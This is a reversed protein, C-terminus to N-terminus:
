LSRGSPGKAPGELYVQEISNPPYPSTFIETASQASARASYAQHRYALVGGAVGLVWVAAVGALIPRWSPLPLWDWLGPKEEERRVKEWFRAKFEASPRVVPLADLLDWVKDIRGLEQGCAECGSLHQEIAAAEKSPLEGDYYASLEQQISECNM